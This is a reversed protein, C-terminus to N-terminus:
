LPKPNAEDARKLAAEIDARRLKSLPVDALGTRELEALSFEKRKPAQSKDSM